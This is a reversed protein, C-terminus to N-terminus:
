IGLIKLDNKSICGVKHEEPVKFEACSFYNLNENMENLRIQDSEKM